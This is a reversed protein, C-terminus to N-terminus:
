LSNKIRKSTLNFASCYFLAILFGTISGAIVDSPYHVMLYIRSFGVLFALILAMWSWKKNFCFFIVTFASFAATTHGSPLSFSTEMHKGLSVWWEYYISDINSFPRERAILPKLLFNTVIISSSLSFIIIIGCKRTKSYIIMVTSILILISAGGFNTIFPFFLDLFSGFEGMHLNNTFTMITRDFREFIVNIIRANIVSINEQNM